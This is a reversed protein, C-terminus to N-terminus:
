KTSYPNKRINKTKINATSCSSSISIDSLNESNDQMKSFM